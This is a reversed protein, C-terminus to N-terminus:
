APRQPWLQAMGMDAPETQPARAALADMELLHRSWLEEFRVDCSM